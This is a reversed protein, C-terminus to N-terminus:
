CGRRTSRANRGSEGGVIVWDIGELPLERIPGPLPEVSLSIVPVLERCEVLRPVAVDATEQTEVSTGLWVHDRRAVRIGGVHRVTDWMAVINEPRKTLLLWDLNRTQDILSFLDRRWATLEDRDEFIDALSACFVRRREGSHAADRDWRFPQRWYQATTRLRTGSPGWKVRGYRTDKMTEAYCNTCLANVKTCGIWPNFTHHTWEIASDKM